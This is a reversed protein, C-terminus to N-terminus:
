NGPTSPPNALDNNSSSGGKGGSLVAVGGGVIILAGAVKALMSTRPKILFFATYQFDTPDKANTFKLRYNDGKKIDSPVLWTYKGVNPLNNSGWVLQDEKYLEINVHGALNGSRWIVPYTKGRKFARRFESPAIQVFPAVVSGRVELSLSGKFSGVENTIDWIIKNENGPKVEMGVDGSVKNLPSKFNDISSFLNISYKHNYNPDSLIYWVIIKNGRIDIRDIRANQALCIGSVFCFLILICKKMKM